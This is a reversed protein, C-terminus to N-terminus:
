SRHRSWRIMIRLFHKKFHFIYEKLEEKIWRRQNRKKAQYSPLLDKLCRITNMKFSTLVTSHVKWDDLIKWFIKGLTTYTTEMIVSNLWDKIKINARYIAKAVLFENVLYNLLFSAWSEWALYASSIKTLLFCPSINISEIM